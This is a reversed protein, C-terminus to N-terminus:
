DIFLPPSSDFRAANDANGTPEGKLHAFVLGLISCCCGVLAAIYFWSSRYNLSTAVNRGEEEGRKEKQEKEEKEKEKKM